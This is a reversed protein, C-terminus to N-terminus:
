LMKLCKAHKGVASYYYDEILGKGVVSTSIFRLSNGVTRSYNVFKVSLGNLARWHQCIIGEEVSSTSEIYWYVDM